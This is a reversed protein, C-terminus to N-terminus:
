RRRRAPPPPSALPLRSRRPMPCGDLRRMVALHLADRASLSVYRLLIDKAEQADELAIGVVEDVVGLIADFAPQIM